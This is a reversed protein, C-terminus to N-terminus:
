VVSERELESPIVFYKAQSFIIVGGFTWLKRPLAKLLPVKELRLKFRKLVELPVVEVGRSSRSKAHRFGFLVTRPKFCAWLSTGRVKRSLTEFWINSSCTRLYFLENELDGDVVKLFYWAARFPLAM